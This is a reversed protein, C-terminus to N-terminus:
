LMLVRSAALFAPVAIFALIIADCLPSSASCLSLCHSLSITYRIILVWCSSAATVFLYSSAHHMIVHLLIPHPSSLPLLPGISDLLLMFIICPISHSRCLSLPGSLFSPPRNTFCQPSFACCVLSLYFHHLSWLQPAPVSPFLRLSLPPCPLPSLSPPLKETKGAQFSSITVYYCVAQCISTAETGWVYMKVTNAHSVVTSIFGRVESILAAALDSSNKKWWVLYVHSLKSVLIDSPTNRLM